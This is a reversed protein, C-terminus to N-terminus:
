SAMTLRDPCRMVASLPTKLVFAIQEGAFKFTLTPSVASRLSAPSSPQFCFGCSGSNALLRRWSMEGRVGCVSVRQPSLSRGPSYRKRPSDRCLAKREWNRLSSTQPGLAVLTPKERPRQGQSTSPQRQGTDEGQADTRVGEESLSVLRLPHLGGMFRM